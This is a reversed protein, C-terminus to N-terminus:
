GNMQNAKEMENIELFQQNEGGVDAAEGLGAGTLVEAAGGHGPFWTISTFLVPQLQGGPSSFVASLQLQGSPKM